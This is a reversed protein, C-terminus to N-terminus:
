FPLPLLSQNVIINTPRNNLEFRIINQQIANQARRETPTGTADILQGAFIRSVEQESPGELPRAFAIILKHIDTRTVEATLSGGVRTLGRIPNLTISPTASATISTTFTLNNTTTPPGSPNDEPGILNNFESLELFDKLMYAIGVQGTIPYMYNTGVSISRCYEPDTDRLLKAFTTSITFTQINQRTRDAGATLGLSRNGNLFTNVATLGGSLNNIETGDFTFNYAIATQSYKALTAKTRSSLQRLDVKRLDATGNIIGTGLARAKPDNPL